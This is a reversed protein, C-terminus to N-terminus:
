FSITDANFIDHSTTTGSTVSIDLM